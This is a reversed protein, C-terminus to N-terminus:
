NINREVEIPLAPNMRLIIRDKKDNIKPADWVITGIPLTKDIACFATAVSYIETAVPVVEQTSKAKEYENAYGYTIHYYEVGNEVVSKVSYVHYQVGFDRKVKLSDYALKPLGVLFMYLFLLIIIIIAVIGITGGGDKLCPEHTRSM